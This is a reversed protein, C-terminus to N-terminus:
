RCSAPVLVGVDAVSSGPNLELLLGCPEKDVEIDGSVRRPKLDAIKM